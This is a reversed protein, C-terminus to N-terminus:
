FDTDWEGTWDNGGGPAEGGGGGDGEGSTTIVDEETLDFLWICPEEYIHKKNDDFICLM